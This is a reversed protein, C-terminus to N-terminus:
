EEWDYSEGLLEYLKRNHPAFHDLLRRRTDQTMEPYSALNYKRYGPAEWESLKLLGRVRRM